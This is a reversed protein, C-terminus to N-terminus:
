PDGPDWSSRSTGLYLLAGLCLLASAPLSCHTWTCAKQETNGYVSFQQVMTNYCKETPAVFLLLWTLCGEASGQGGGGLFLVTHTQAASTGLVQLKSFETTHSRYFCKSVPYIFM